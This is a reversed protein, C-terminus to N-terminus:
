SESGATKIADGQRREVLGSGPDKTPGDLLLVAAGGDADAQFSGWGELQVMYGNALYHQVASFLIEDFPLAIRPLRFSGPDKTKKPWANPRLEVTQPGPVLTGLPVIAVHHGADLQSRVIALHNDIKARVDVHPAGTARAIQDTLMAADVIASGADSTNAM